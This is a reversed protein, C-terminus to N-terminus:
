SVLGLLYSLIDYGAEVGMIILISALRAAIKTNLVVNVANGAAAIEGAIGSGIGALVNLSGAILAMHIMYEVDIAVGDISSTVLYGSVSGVGGLLFSSLCSASLWGIVAGNVVKTALALMAGGVSASLGTIAGLYSLADANLFRGTRPDYYRSQLYYLGTETDYYYGHYRIPNISDTEMIGCGREPTLVFFVTVGFPPPRFKRFLKVDLM